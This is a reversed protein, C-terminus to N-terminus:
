GLVIERYDKREVSAPATYGLDLLGLLGGLLRDQYGDSYHAWPHGYSLGQHYTRSYLVNSFMVKLQTVLFRQEKIV